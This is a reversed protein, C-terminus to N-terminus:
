DDDVEEEPWVQKIIVKKDRENDRIILESVAHQADTLTKFTKISKPHINYESYNAWGFWRLFGGRSRFQIFYPWSWDSRSMVRYEFTRSKNM